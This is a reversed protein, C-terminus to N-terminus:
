AEKQQRFFSGWCLDSLPFLDVLFSSLFDSKTQSLLNGFMGSLIWSLMQHCSGFLVTTVLHSSFFLPFDYRCVVADLLIMQCLSCKLLDELASFDISCSASKHRLPTSEPVREPIRPLPSTNIGISQSSKKSIDLQQKLSDIEEQLQQNKESLERREKSHHPATSSNLPLPLHSTSSM